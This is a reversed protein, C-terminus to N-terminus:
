CRSRVVRFDDFWGVVCHIPHFGTGSRWGFCAKCVGWGVLRGVDVLLVLDVLALWRWGFLAVLSVLGALALWVFGAWALWVWCLAVVAFWFWGGGVLSGVAGVVLLAYRM